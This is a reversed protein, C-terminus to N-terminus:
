GACAYDGFYYKAAQTYAAHAEEATGYCGLHISKGRVRIRAQYRNYPTLRHVGKYGSKNNKYVTTNLTQQRPTVIRLNFINNNSRNRDIHDVELNVDLSGYVWLWVLRHAYYRQGRFMGYIYGKSSKCGFKGLKGPYGTVKRKILAGDWLSLDFHEWLNEPEPLQKFTKNVTLFSLVSLV